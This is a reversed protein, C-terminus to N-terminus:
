RLGGAPLVAFVAVASHSLHRLLLDNRLKRESQPSDTGPPRNREQEQQPVSPTASAEQLRARIEYVVRLDNVFRVGSAYTLHAQRDAARYLSVPNLDNATIHRPNIGLAQSLIFLTAAVSALGLAFRPSLLGPLLRSWLSEKKQRVAGSTAQLIRYVLWSPEVEPELRGLRAVVGGVEAALARCVACAQLHAELEQREAAVLQGELYESLREETNLCTWTM